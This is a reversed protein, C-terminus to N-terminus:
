FGSLCFEGNFFEGAIEESIRHTLKNFNKIILNYEQDELLISGEFDFKNNNSLVITLGDIRKIIDEIEYHDDFPRGSVKDPLFFSISDKNQYWKKILEINDM